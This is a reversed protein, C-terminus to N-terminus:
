CVPTVEKENLFKLQGGVGFRNLFYRPVRTYCIEVPRYRPTPATHLYNERIKIKAGQLQNSHFPVFVLIFRFHATSHQATHQLTFRVLFVVLRLIRLLVTGRSRAGEGLFRAGIHHCHCSVVSIPRRDASLRGHVANRQM